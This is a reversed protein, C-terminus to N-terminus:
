GEAQRKAIGYHTQSNPITDESLGGDVKDAVAKVTIM